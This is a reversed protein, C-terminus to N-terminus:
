MEFFFLVYSTRALLLADLLVERGLAQNSSRKPKNADLDDTKLLSTRQQTHVSAGETRGM